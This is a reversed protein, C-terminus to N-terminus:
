VPPKRDPRAYDRFPLQRMLPWLGGAMLRGVLDQFGLSRIQQITSPQNEVFGDRADPEIVIERIIRRPGLRIESIRGGGPAALTVDPDRKDAVLPTGCLVQDGQNVLLRPKIFPFHEPAL